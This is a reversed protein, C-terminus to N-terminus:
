TAFHLLLIRAASTGSIRAAAIFQRECLRLTSIRAVRAFIPISVALLAFTTNARAPGFAQAICIVLVLSPFAVLVEVGRMVVADVVGKSYASLSGLFGGVLLAILNTATAIELSARGGHLLRSLVDNGNLDTGLLHNPSFLPKNADQVRGGTPEPLDGLIPWAFCAFAIVAVV